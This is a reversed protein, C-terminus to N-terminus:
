AAGSVGAMGAAGAAGAAGGLGFGTSAAPTVSPTAAALAQSVADVRGQVTVLDADTAGSAGTTSGGSKLAKVVATAATELGTVSVKLDDLKSMIETMAETNAHLAAIQRDILERDHRIM